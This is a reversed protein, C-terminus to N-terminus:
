RQCNPPRADGKCSASSCIDGRSGGITDARGATCLVRWTFRWWSVAGRAFGFALVDRGAPLQPCCQFPEPCCVEVPEALMLKAENRELFSPSMNSVTAAGRDAM